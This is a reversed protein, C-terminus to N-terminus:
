QTFYEFIQSIDSINNNMLLTDEISNIYKIIKHQTELDFVPIEFTELYKKSLNISTNLNALQILKNENQKLYEYIFKNDYNSDNIEIFYINNSSMESKTLEVKGALHSNKYIIITNEKDSINLINAITSLKVTQKNIFKNFIMQKFYNGNERQKLNILKITENNNFFDIIKEQEELSFVKIEIQKLIEIDIQKIKGKTINNIYKDFIYYLYYNIFEQKFKNENKTLFLYDFKTESNIKDYKYNNNNYSYFYEKDCYFPLATIIDIIDDITNSSDNFITINCYNNCYFSYNKQIVMYDNVSIDSQKNLSSFIISKNVEFKKEFYLISKKLNPKYTELNIVKINSCNDYIYKRTEIHQKSDGFLFSDPVLVVATGNDKLLQYILQILLPESKTGRIKLEKIISCCNAYIINKINDPIECIILDYKGVIDNDYLIDTKNFNINTINNNIKCNLKAIEIIQEKEDYCDIINFKIDNKVLLNPFNATGSYLNLITDYNTSLLKIMNNIILKDTYIINFEKLLQKNDKLLNVYNYLYYSDCNNNKNCLIICKMLIDNPLSVFYGTTINDNNLKSFLTTSSLTNAKFYNIYYLVNYLIDLTNMKLNMFYPILLNFLDNTQNNKNSDSKIINDPENKTDPQNNNNSIIIDSIIINERAM